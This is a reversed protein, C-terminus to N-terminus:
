VGKVEICQINDVYPSVENWSRKDDAIKIARVAANCQEMSQMPVVQMSSSQSSIVFVLFYYPM